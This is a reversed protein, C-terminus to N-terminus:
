GDDEFYQGLITCAMVRISGFGMRLENMGVKIMLCELRILGMGHKSECVWIVNEVVRNFCLGIVVIFNGYCSSRIISVIGHSVFVHKFIIPIYDM